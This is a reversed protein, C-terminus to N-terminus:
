LDNAFSGQAMVDLLLPTTSQQKAGTLSRTNPRM